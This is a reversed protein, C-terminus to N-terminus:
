VIVNLRSADPEPRQTTVTDPTASARARGTRHPPVRPDASRIPFTAATVAAVPIASRCISMSNRSAYERNRSVNRSTPFAISCFRSRRKPKSKSSPQHSRRDSLSMELKMSGLEPPSLRIQVEGGREDAMRFAGTVRQLLRAQQADSIVPSTSPATQGAAGQLELHRRLSHPLTSAAAHAADVPTLLPSPDVKARTAEPTNESAAKEEDKTQEEESKQERDTLPGLKANEIPAITPQSNADAFLYSAFGSNNKSKETKAEQSPASEVSAAIVESAPQVEASPIPSNSQAAIAEIKAAAEALQEATLNSEFPVAITTEQAPIAENALPAAVTMPYRAPSLEEIVATPSELIGPEVAGIAAAARPGPKQLLLFEGPPTVELLPPSEELHENLTTADVQSYLAVDPELTFGVTSKVRNSIIEVAVLTGPSADDRKEIETEEDQTKKDTLKGSVNRNHGSTSHPPASDSRTESENPKSPHEAERTRSPNPKEHEGRSSKKAKLHEAFKDSALPIKRQADSNKTEPPTSAVLDTVAPIM